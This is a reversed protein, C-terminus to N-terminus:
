RFCDEPSFAGKTKSLLIHLTGLCKMNELLVLCYLHIGLLAVLVVSGFSRQTTISILQHVEMVRRDLGDGQEVRLEVNVM